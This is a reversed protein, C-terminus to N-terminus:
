EKEMNSGNVVPLETAVKSDGFETLSNVQKTALNNDELSKANVVVMGSETEEVSEPIGNGSSDNVVEGDQKLGSDVGDGCTGSVHLMASGIDEVSKADLVLMGSDSDEVIGPNESGANQKGLVEGVQQFVYNIDAVSSAKVVLMGSDTEDVLGTETNGPTERVQLMASEIDVSKADVVLIGSHSDEVIGMNESEANTNGLTEGVQQLVSDIDALSSAKIKSETEDVMGSNGIGTVETVQMVASDIDEISKTNFVMIGSNADEVLKPNESGADSKGLVEGVQKFVLNMDALSNAKVVLMGSETEEVLGADESENAESVNLIASDIDDLSSADLVVMGNELGGANQSTGANGSDSEPVRLIEGVQKFVSEIDEVSKAKVVLMGSDTEDVLGSDGYSSGEFLESVNLMVSDIDDISKADLVVMDSNADAAFGANVGVKDPKGIVEGVQKFVLDIDEKSSAKVVLMGSETEDVLGVDESTTVDSIQMMASEIDDISKAELVVMGMEADGSQTVTSGVLADRVQEFTTNIDVISKAKVVLMGSETEDIVGTDEGEALSTAVQVFASELDAHSKVKVALMGSETEEVIGPIESEVVESGLLAMDSQEVKMVTVPSEHSEDPVEDSLANIEETSTSHLIHRRPNYVTQEPNENPELFLGVGPEIGVNQAGGFQQNSEIITNQFELWSIHQHPVFDGVADLETLLDEDIENYEVPEPYIQDADEDSDQDSELPDPLGLNTKDPKNDKTTEEEPIPHLDILSFQSTKITNEQSLNTIQQSALPTTNPEM